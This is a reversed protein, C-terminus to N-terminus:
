LARSHEQRHESFAFRLGANDPVLNEPLRRSTASARPGAMLRSRSIRLAAPAVSVGASARGAPNETMAAREREGIVRRNGELRQLLGAITPSRANM